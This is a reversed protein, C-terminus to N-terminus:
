QADEERCDIEHVWAPDGFLVPITVMPGGTRDCRVCTKM